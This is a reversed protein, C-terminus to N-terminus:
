APLPKAGNDPWRNQLWRRMPIDYYYHLLASLVVLGGCLCALVAPTCEGVGSFLFFLKFVPIHMVYLPYSCGGMFALLVAARPPADAQSFFICAPFVVLVALIDILGDWTHLGPFTLVFLVAGLNLWVLARPYTSNGRLRFLLLGACFGFLARSFGLLFSDMGWRAGGNLNMTHVFAEWLLFGAATVVIAILVRRTLMPRLLAYIGNVLLEAFLTWFVVNLPYFCDNEPLHSPLFFVTLLGSLLIDSDGSLGRLFTGVLCFVLSFIFLPYLRILRRLIFEGASMAGKALREDYAYAIVFGSLLFFLDVALYSHHFPNPYDNGSVSIHRFIVLLAAIGRMGELFVYRRRNM